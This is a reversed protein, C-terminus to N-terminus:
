HIAESRSSSKELALAARAAAKWEKTTQKAKLHGPGRRLYSLNENWTHEPVGYAVRAFEGCTPRSAAAYSFHAKNSADYRVFEQM